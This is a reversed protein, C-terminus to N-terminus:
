PPSPALHRVWTMPSWAVERPGAWVGVGWGDTHGVRALNRSHAPGQGPYSAGPQACPQARAWMLFESVRLPLCVLLRNGRPVVPQRAPPADFGTHPPTDSFIDWLLAVRAFSARCSPHQPYLFLVSVGSLGAREPLWPPDLHSSRQLAVPVTLSQASSSPLPWSGVGLLRAATVALERPM